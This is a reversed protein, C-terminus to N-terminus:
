TSFHDIRQVLITASSSKIKKRKTEAIKESIKVRTLHRSFYKNPIQITEERLEELVKNTAEVAQKFKILAEYTPNNDIDWMLMYLSQQLRLALRLIDKEAEDLAHQKTLEDIQSKSKDVYKNYRKELNSYKSTLDNAVKRHHEAAQRDKESSADNILAAVTAGVAVGVLPLLFFM